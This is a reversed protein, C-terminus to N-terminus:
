LRNAYQVIKVQPGNVTCVQEPAIERYGTVKM